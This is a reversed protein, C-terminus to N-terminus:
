PNVRFLQKKRNKADIYAIYAGRFEHIDIFRDKNM